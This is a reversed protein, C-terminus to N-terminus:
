WFHLAPGVLLFGLVSTVALRKPDVSSKKEITLQCVAPAGLVPLVAPVGCSCGACAVCSACALAGLVLLVAPVRAAAGGEETYAGGTDGGELSSPTGRV